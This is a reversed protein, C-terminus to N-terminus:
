RAIGRWPGAFSASCWPRRGLGTSWRGRWGAAGSAVLWRARGRTGARISSTADRTADRNGCCACPPFSSRRKISRIARKHRCYTLDCGARSSGPTSRLNKDVAYLIQSRVAIGGPARAGGKVCTQGGPGLRPLTMNSMPPAPSYWRREPVLPPLIAVAGPCAGAVVEILRSSSTCAALKSSDASFRRLDIGGLPVRAASSSQSDLMSEPHSSLTPMAEASSPSSSPSFACASSASPYSSTNSSPKSSSSTSTFESSSTSVSAASPPTSSSGASSESSSCGRSSKSASSSHSASRMPPAHMGGGGHMYPTRAGGRRCAGPAAFAEQAYPVAANDELAPTRAGRGTGELAPMGAGRRKLELAPM